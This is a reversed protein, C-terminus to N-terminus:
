YHHIFRKFRVSWRKVERRATRASFEVNVVGAFDEHLTSSGM